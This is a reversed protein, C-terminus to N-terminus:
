KQNDAGLKELAKAVTDAYVVIGDESPHTKDRHLLEPHQKIVSWWDAVVTNPYDASISNLTKNSDEIWYSIGVTNVLVVKRQPGLQDLIQRLAAESDPEKFGANTGYNLVVIQRLNGKDIVEQLMTPADHWQMSPRANIYIGPFRRYMAPAAASMVSDGLAVMSTGLSSQDGASGNKVNPHNAAEVTRVFPNAQRQAEAEADAQEMARQGEEVALQERSKDPATFIGITSVVVIAAAGLAVVGPRNIWSRPHSFREVVAHWTAKFGRERVPMELWRYSAETLLLTVAVVPIFIWFGIYSQMWAYFSTAGLIIMVPWHWLYLGYSREGIWALPRICCIRTFFTAEGPLAAVAVATLISALLIGGRYTYNNTSDLVVFLFIIGAVAAVAAPGKVLQWGKTSFFRGGGCFALAVGIMLGFAHTDTGYYVRTSNVPDLLRAMLFASGAAALLALIALRKRGSTLFLLAILLPPWLLYFQEEVALSWFTVFLSHDSGAFYDSGAAIEVWNTSFTLAGLTQRKINVLLDSNVLTAVAISALVVLVLAPLLRRARRIWFASLRIKGKSDKERLLLTTILFGSIVFFVDVGLFGGPLALPWLHFALVGLVALARLGDLGEIRGSSKLNSM